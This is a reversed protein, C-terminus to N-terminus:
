AKAKRRRISAIGGGILGLGLLAVSGPEPLRFDQNADAQFVINNSGFAVGDFGGPNVWNTLQGGLQLLTGVTTGVLAPSIYTANTYTVAGQLVSNGQGATVGDSTFSGGFQQGFVGQILLTGDKFGTGNSGSSSNANTAPDFYISFNGSTINFTCLNQGGGVPLCATVTENLHAVVTYEYTSLPVGDAAGNANVDMHQPAFTSPTNNLTVAWSFFDMTFSSNVVPTFGTTFATGGQAWDFGTWAFTGDPNTLSIAHAPAAVISAAAFGAAAAIHRFAKM